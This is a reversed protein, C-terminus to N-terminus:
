PCGRRPRAPAACRQSTAAPVRMRNTSSTCRKLLLAAPRTGAADDFRAQEGEDAGGGLVRRELDVRRQQRAGRDVHQLDSVSSSSRCSSSRALSWRAAAVQLEVVAATSSAPRSRRRRRAASASGARAPRSARGARGPVRLISSASRRSRAPASRQAAEVLAAVLEVVLDGRQVLRHAARM